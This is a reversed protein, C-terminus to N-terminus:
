QTAENEVPQPLDYWEYLCVGLYGLTKVWDWTSPAAIRVAHEMNPDKKLDTVISGEGYALYALIGIGTELYVAVGWFLLLCWIWTSAGFKRLYIPPLIWFFLLSAVFLLVRTSNIDILNEM